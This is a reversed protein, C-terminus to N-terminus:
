GLGVPESRKGDLWSECRRRAEDSGHQDVSWKTSSPKGDDDWHWAKWCVYSRREGTSTTWTERSLRVYGYGGTRKKERPTQHYAHFELAAMRAGERGGYVGDSFLRRLWCTSVGEELRYCRVLYGRTRDYEHRTVGRPLLELTVGTDAAVTMVPAPVEAQAQFETEPYVNAWGQLSSM